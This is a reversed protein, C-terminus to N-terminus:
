RIMVVDGDADSIAKIADMTFQNAEVTFSKSLAGGSYIKLSTATPLVLDRAKLARLSIVDGEDFADEVSCIDILAVSPNASPRPAAPAARRVPEEVTEEPEEEVAEVEEVEEVAEEYSADEYPEEEFPNEEYAEEEYVDQEDAPVEGDATDTFFLEEDEDAVEEGEEVEEAPEDYSTSELSAWVSATEEVPAETPEDVPADEALVEEDAFFEEEVPEDAVPSQEEAPEALVEIPETTTIM